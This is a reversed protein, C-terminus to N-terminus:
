WTHDALIGCQRSPTFRTGCAARVSFLQFSPSRVVSGLTFNTLFDAVVAVTPLITLLRVTPLDSVTQCEFHPQCELHPKDM